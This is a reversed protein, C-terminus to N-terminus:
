NFDQKNTSLLIMENLCTQFVQSMLNNQTSVAFNLWGMINHNKDQLCAPLAGSAMKHLSIRQVFFAIKINLPM